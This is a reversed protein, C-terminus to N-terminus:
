FIYVCIKVVCYKIVSDPCDFQHIFFTLDICYPGHFILIVKNKKVNSFNLRRLHSAKSLCMYRIVTCKPSPICRFDDLLESRRNNCHRIFSLSCLHQFKYIIYQTLMNSLGHTRSILRAIRGTVPIHLVVVAWTPQKTCNECFSWEM